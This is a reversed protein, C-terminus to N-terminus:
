NLVEKIIIYGLLLKRCINEQTVTKHKKNNNNNNNQHM